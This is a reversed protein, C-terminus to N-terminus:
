TPGSPVCCIQTSRKESYDLPLCAIGIASNRGKLIKINPNLAAAGEMMEDVCDNVANILQKKPKSKDAM